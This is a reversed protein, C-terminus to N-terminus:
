KKKIIKLDLQYTEDPDIVKAKILKNPIQFIYYDGHKAPTGVFSIDSMSKEEIM